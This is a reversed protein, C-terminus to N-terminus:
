YGREALKYAKHLEKESIGPYMIKVTRKLYEKIEGSLGKFHIIANYQVLIKNKTDIDDLYFIFIDASQLNKQLRDTIYALNIKSDVADRIILNIKDAEIQPLSKLKEIHSKQQDTAYVIQKCISINENICFGFYILVDDYRNIMTINLDIKTYDVGNYTIVEMDPTLERPIPICVELDNDFSYDVLLVKKGLRNLIRSLYLIIDYNTTGIFGLINNAM